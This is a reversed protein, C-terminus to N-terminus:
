LSCDIESGLKRCVLIWFVIKLHSALIISTLEIPVTVFDQIAESGLETFIVLSLAIQSFEGVRFPTLQRCYLFLLM